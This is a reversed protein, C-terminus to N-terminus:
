PPAPPQAVLLGLAIGQAIQAEGPRIEALWALSDVVILLTETDGALDAVPAALAIGQTIQAVGPRIEALWALGDVVVLLM